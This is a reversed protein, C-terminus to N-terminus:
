GSVEPAYVTPLPEPGIYQQCPCEYRGVERGAMTRVTEVCCERTKPSHSSLPHGCTCIPKPPEPHAPRRAPLFRGILIGLVVLAAGLLMELM